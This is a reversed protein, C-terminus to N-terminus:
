EGWAAVIAAQDTLDASISQLDAGAVIRLVLATYRKNLFRQVEDRIAAAADAAAQAAIEDLAIQCSEATPQSVIGLSPKQWRPGTQVGIGLMANIIGAYDPKFQAIAALSARVVPGTFDVGGSSLMRDLMSGGPLTVLVTDLGAVTTADVGAAILKEAM